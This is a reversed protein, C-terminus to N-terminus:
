LQFRTRAKEMGGKWEWEQGSARQIGTDIRRLKLTFRPGIEQLGARIEEVGKMPRGDTGIISKETERKDRFNYRHRRFFIYDRQNHLTVVQRGILEPRTPFLTRFLHATLIGLPTRFNNLILEPYHGTPNGHGPLVSGPLWNNLSFHFTPGTPLHVITLGTPRKQNEELVLLTTFERSAAFKSVERVSYKHGAYHATRRIYQSNPFLHTLLRAENHLTSNISTTILVKPETPPSFLTPYKESLSSAMSKLLTAPSPTRNRRIESDYRRKELTSTSKSHTIQHKRDNGTEDEGGESGDDELMSDVDSHGSNSSDSAFRADEDKEDRNERAKRKKRKLADLDVSLGLREEDEEVEDWVRKREITVPVNQARREDRLHPKKQEERRRRFRLERKASDKAKKQEVHWLQRRQKNRIRSSSVPADSSKSRPLGM